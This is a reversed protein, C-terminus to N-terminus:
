SKLSDMGNKSILEAVREGWIAYVPPGPHFGDSAMMSAAGDDEFPLHLAGRERCLQQLAQDFRKAQSGLYWRLPQPLAPFRHVPPMGSLILLPDDFAERCRDILASQRTVFGKVSIGSTLDNVGLSTVVVDVAEANLGKLMKLTQGTSRGTEALLRHRVTHHDKLNSLVQGLLAQDQTPAGM